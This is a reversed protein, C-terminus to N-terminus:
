LISRSFSRGTLPEANRSLTSSRNLVVAAAQWFLKAAVNIPVNEIIVEGTDFIEVKGLGTPGVTSFGLIKKAIYEVPFVKYYVDQVYPTGLWSINSIALGIIIGWLAAQRKMKNLQKKLQAHQGKM